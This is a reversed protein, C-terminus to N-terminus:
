VVGNNGLIRTIFPAVSMERPSHNAAATVLPQQMTKEINLHPWDGAVKRQPSKKRVQGGNQFITKQQLPKTGNFFFMDKRQKVMSIVFMARERNASAFPKM